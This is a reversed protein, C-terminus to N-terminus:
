VAKLTIKRISQEGRNNNYERGAKDKVPNIIKTELVYKIPFTNKFNRGYPFM